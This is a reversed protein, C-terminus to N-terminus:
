RYASDMGVAALVRKAGPLIRYFGHKGDASVEVMDM